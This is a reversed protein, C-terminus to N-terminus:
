PERYAAVREAVARLRRDRTWLAAGDTLRVSALLHADVFGIGSGALDEAEIFLRVEADTARVASTLADLAELIIGRQKLNGLAIEGTVFPHVLVAADDLLRVLRPESRAFHDIWISTDVLIM